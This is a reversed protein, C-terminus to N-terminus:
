IEFAKGWGWRVVWGCPRENLGNRGVIGFQAHVRFPLSPKGGRVLSDRYEKRDFSYADGITPM